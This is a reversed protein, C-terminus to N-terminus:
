WKNNTVILRGDAYDVAAQGDLFIKLARDAKEYTISSIDETSGEPALYFFNGDPSWVHKETGILMPRHKIITNPLIALRYDKGEKMVIESGKTLPEAALANQMMVYHTFPMYFSAPEEVYEQLVESDVVVQVAKKIEALINAQNITAAAAYVNSAPIDGIGGAGVTTFGQLMKIRLGDFLNVGSQVGTANNWVGKFLAGNIDKGAQKMIKGMYYTMAEFSYIDSPDTAGKSSLYTRSWNYLTVEDLKIDAKFPKIEGIRNALSVADNTFNVSGTRGPQLIPGTSDRILPVKDKTPMVILDGNTKENFGNSVKLGFITSYDALSRQLEISLASINFAAM